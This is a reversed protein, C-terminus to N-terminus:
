PRGRHDAIEDEDRRVVELAGPREPRVRALLQPAVVVAGEVGGDAVASPDVEVAGAREVPEVRPADPVRRVAAPGGGGFGLAGEGGGLSRGGRKGRALAPPIACRFARWM